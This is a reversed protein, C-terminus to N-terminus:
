RDSEVRRVGFVFVLVRATAMIRPGLDGVAHVFVLLHLAGISHDHWKRNVAGSKFFDNLGLTEM